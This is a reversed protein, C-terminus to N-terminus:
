LDKGVQNPLKLCRKYSRKHDQSNEQKKEISIKADVIIIPRLKNNKMIRTAFITM